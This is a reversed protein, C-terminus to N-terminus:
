KLVNIFKGNDFIETYELNSNEDFTLWHGHKLDNKWYGKKFVKGNEYFYVSEGNLYAEEINVKGQSQGNEYFKEFALLKGKDYEVKEKLSGSEYWNLALGHRVGDQYNVELQKKGDNYFTSTKGNLVNHDYEESIALIGNEFYKKKNFQNREKDFYEFVVNPNGNNWVMQVHTDVIPKEKKECATFFLLSSFFFFWYKM